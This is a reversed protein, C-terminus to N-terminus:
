CLYYLFDAVFKMNKVGDVWRKALTIYTHDGLMRLKFFTQGRPKVLFPSAEILGGLPSRLSGGKPGGEYGWYFGFFSGWRVVFGGVYKHKM